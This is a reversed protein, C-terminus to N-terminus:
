DNEIKGNRSLPPPLTIEEVMSIETSFNETENTQFIFSKANPQDLIDDFFFCNKKASHCIGLKSLSDIGLIAASHLKSCVFTPVYISRNHVTLQLNYVGVVNLDDGSANVLRTHNPLKEPRSNIPIQRFQKLSMCTVSAGSDYLWDSTGAKTTVKIFPRPNATKWLAECSLTFITMINQFFTNRKNEESVSVSM